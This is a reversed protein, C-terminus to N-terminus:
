SLLQALSSRAIALRSILTEKPCDLIDAIERYSLSEFERLVIIERLEAPLGQIAERVREWDAKDTCTDHSEKCREMGCIAHSSEGAPHLAQCHTRLDKFEHLWINRLVKFLSTKTNSEESHPEITSTCNAYAKEVLEEAETQHQTLVMAYSYLSDLHEIAAAGVHATKRQEWTM